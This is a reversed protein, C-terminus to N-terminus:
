GDTAGPNLRANAAELRDTLAQTTANLEDWEADTPERGETKLQNVKDKVEKLGTLAAEGAPILREAVDLIGLILAIAGGM